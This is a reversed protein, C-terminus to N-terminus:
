FVSLAESLREGCMTIILCLLLESLSCAALIQKNSSKSNGLWLVEATLPHDHFSVTEFIFSFADQDM